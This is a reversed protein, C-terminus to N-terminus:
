TFAIPHGEISTRRMKMEKRIKGEEEKERKRNKEKRKWGREGSHVEMM